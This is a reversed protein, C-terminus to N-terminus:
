TRLSKVTSQRKIRSHVTLKYQRVTIASM